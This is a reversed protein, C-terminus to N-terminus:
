KVNGFFEYMVEPNAKCNEGNKKFIRLEYNRLLDGGSMIHIEMVVLPTWIM